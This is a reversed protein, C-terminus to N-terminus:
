MAVLKGKALDIVRVLEEADVVWSRQGEPAFLEIELRGHRCRVEGWQGGEPVFLQVVPEDAPIGYIAELTKLVKRRHRTRM